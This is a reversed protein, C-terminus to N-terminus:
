ILIDVKFCLVYYIYNLFKYIINNINCWNCENDSSKYASIIFNIIIKANKM